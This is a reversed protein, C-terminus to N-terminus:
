IQLTTVTLGVMQICSFQTQCSIVNERDNPREKYSTVFNRFQIGAKLKADLIDYKNLLLIFTVDRLLKNSCVTKWLLFSDWQSHNSRKDDGGSSAYM